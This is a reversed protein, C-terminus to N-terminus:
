WSQVSTTGGRVAMDTEESVMRASVVTHTLWVRANVDVLYGASKQANIWGYLGVADLREPVEVVASALGEKSPLAFWVHVRPM